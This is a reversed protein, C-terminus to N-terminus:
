KLLKTFTITDTIFPNKWGKTRDQNKHELIIHMEDYLQKPRLRCFGDSEPGPNTFMQNSVNLLGFTFTFNRLSDNQVPIAFVFGDSSDLVREGNRYTFSIETWATDINMETGDLLEFRVKNPVYQVVTSGNAKAEEKSRSHGFLGDVSDCGSLSILLILHISKIKM